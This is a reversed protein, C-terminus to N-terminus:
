HSPTPTGSQRSPAPGAQNQAGAATSGATGSNGATSGPVQGAGSQPAAASGGTAGTTSNGAGNGPTSLNPAKPDGVIPGAGDNRCAVLALGAVLAFVMNHVKFCLQMRHRKFIRRGSLADRDPDARSTAITAPGRWVRCLHVRTWKTPGTRCMPQMNIFHVDCNGANCCISM